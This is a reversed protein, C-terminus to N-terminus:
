CTRAHSYNGFHQLLYFHRVLFDYVNSKTSPLWGPLSGSLMNRKLYISRFQLHYSFVPLEGTLSNFSLDRQVSSRFVSINGSFFFVVSEMCFSLTPLLLYAQLNRLYFEYLYILSKMQGIYEPIPGTISCNRLTLYELSTMRRIDPFPNKGGILDAVHLTSLSTLSSISQPIPGEFSNGMLSLYELQKWNDIFEPIRGTFNNGMIDLYTLNEFEAFSSPFAGTFENVSLYVEELNKLNKLQRPLRGSLHNESLDMYQLTSINGLDKPVHGSLLNQWLSKFQKKSFAMIGQPSTM